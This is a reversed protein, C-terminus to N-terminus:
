LVERLPVISSKSRLIAAISVRCFATETAAYVRDLKVHLPCLSTHSPLGLPCVKIRGIPEVANVVDLMTITEPRRKLSYGGQGGCRSEVLDAAVLNQMVRHLYRRPVKTVSAVEAASCSSKGCCSSEALFTVARLAYETTKSLMSTGLSQWGSCLRFTCRSTYSLFYVKQDVYQLQRVM